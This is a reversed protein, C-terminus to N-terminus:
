GEEELYEPSKELEAALADLGEASSGNFSAYDLASKLHREADQFQGMDYLLRGLRQRYLSNSPDLEVSRRFLSLAMSDDKGEERYLAGLASLSQADDPHIKVAQKFASKAGNRDGALLKAQGLLSFVEGRRNKGAAARGLAELATPVHGLELATKGLQHLVEPRDPALSAAKQLAKEAEELQGNWLYSCGKNFNAMLDDPNQRIVDEFAALAAKQDGLRGHCVGLSNLLNQHGPDLLLGERYEAIAGAIDGAGFLRDGVINLTQPGFSVAVEHGTMSAELLANQARLAIKEFTLVPSPGWVLAMSVQGPGEASKLFQALEEELGPEPATWLLALTGLDWPARHRPPRQFRRELSEEFLAIKSDAEREGALSLVKELDDLRALAFLFPKDAALAARLAALLEALAEPERERAQRARPGADLDQGALELRDGPAVRRDPAGGVLHALSYGPATEFIVAEGKHRGDEGKITFRAGAQAGMVRGLNVLIREQPLVQTVRGHRSLLDGFAILSAGNQGNAFFLATEAKELLSLGPAPNFAQSAERRLDEPYSALAMAALNGPESGAQAQLIAALSARTAALSHSVLLGLRNPSLRALRVLGPLAGLARALLRSHATFGRRLEVLALVLSEDEKEELRLSLPGAPPPAIRKQLAALFYDKNHLGSEWDLTLARRWALKEILSHALAPLAEAIAPSLTKGPAASVSLVGLDRGRYGLRATAQADPSASPGRHFSLDPFIASLERLFAKESRDLDKKTFRTKNVM